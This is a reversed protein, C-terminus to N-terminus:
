LPLHISLSVLPFFITPYINYTLLLHTFDSCKKSQLDLNFDGALIIKATPHANNIISLLMLLLM